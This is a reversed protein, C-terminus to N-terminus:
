LEMMAGIKILTGIIMSIFTIEMLLSVLIKVVLRLPLTPNPVPSYHSIVLSTFYEPNDVYTNPGTSWGSAM